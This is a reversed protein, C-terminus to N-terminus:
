PSMRLVGWLSRERYRDRAMCELPRMDEASMRALRAIVEMLALWILDM